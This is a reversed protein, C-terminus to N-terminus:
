NPGNELRGGEVEEWVAGIESGGKGSVGSPLAERIGTAPDPPDSLGPSDPGPIGPRGMDGYGDEASSYGWWAGALGSGDIEVV